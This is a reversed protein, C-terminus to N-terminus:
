RAQSAIFSRMAAACSAETSSAPMASNSHNSRRAPSQAEGGASRHRVRRRLAGTRAASAARRRKRDRGARQRHQKTEDNRHDKTAEDRAVREGVLGVQGPRAEHRHPQVLKWRAVRVATRVSTSREGEAVRPLHM